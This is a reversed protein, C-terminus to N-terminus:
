RRFEMLEEYTDQCESCLGLLRYEADYAAQDEADEYEVASLSEGCGLPEPLCRNERVVDAVTVGTLATIFEDLSVRDAM